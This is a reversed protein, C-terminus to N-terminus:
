DIKIEWYYKGAIEELALGRLALSGKTNYVFRGDRDVIVAADFAKELLEDMLGGRTRMQQETMEIHM